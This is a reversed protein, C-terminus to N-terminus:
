VGTRTEIWARGAADTWIARVDNDPLWRRGWFYRFRGDRMRWAGELTGAWLDGNPALHLCRISEYPGGGRGRVGHWGQGGDSLYVGRDTGVWIHGTPDAALDTVRARVNVAPQGPEPHRPGVEMPEFGGATSRFPGQDTLVWTRGSAARATALVR